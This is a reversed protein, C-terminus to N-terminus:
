IEMAISFLCHFKISKILKRLSAPGIIKIHGKYIM